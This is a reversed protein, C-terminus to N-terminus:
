EKIQKLVANVCLEAVSGGEDQPVGDLVENVAKVMKTYILNSIQEKDKM